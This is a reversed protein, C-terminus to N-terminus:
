HQLKWNAIPAVLDIDMRCLGMDKLQRDSMRHLSKRAHWTQVASRRRARLASFLSIIRQAFQHEAFPQPAERSQAVPSQTAFAPAGITEPRGAPRHNAMPHAPQIADGATHLGLQWLRLPFRRRELHQIAFGAEAILQTPDRTLHCGGALRSWLGDLRNQLRSLLQTEARGHEIFLLHGGPKLVRRIEALAAKPDPITCLSYTVVVTDAMGDSLPLNEAYAEVIELEVDAAQRMALRLMDPDPEVAILRQTRAPDYFPLNLGSGFGVEVVIGCAQSVVKARMEAFAAMSCGTHVFRTTLFRRFISPQCSACM